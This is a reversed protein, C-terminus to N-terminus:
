KAKDLLEKAASAVDADADRSYKELMETHLKPDFDPDKGLEQLYAAKEQPTKMQLLKFEPSKQMAHGM